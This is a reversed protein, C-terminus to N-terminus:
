LSKEVTIGQNAAKFSEIKEEVFYKEKNIRYMAPEKETKPKLKLTMEESHIGM